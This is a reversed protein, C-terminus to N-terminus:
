VHDERKFAGEASRGPIECNRLALLRDMQALLVRKVWEEPQGAQAAKVISLYDNRALDPIVLPPYGQRAMYDQMLMRGVRGNGDPFPHIHEFYMFLHCALVLPHLKQGTHMQDRWQFFRKMVAPVEIHYPFICLPDSKVSIPTARYDGLSIRDGWGRTYLAESPTGRNTLSSLCRVEVENLSSTRTQPSAREAIWLSAIVHNALELFDGTGQSPLQTEPIPVTLINDVPMSGIKIRNSAFYQDLKETIVISDKVSLANNELAVSQHAFEAVLSKAIKSMPTSIAIRVDDIQKLM